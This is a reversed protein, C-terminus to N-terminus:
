EPEGGKRPDGDAKGPHLERYIYAAGGGRDLRIGKAGSVVRRVPVTQGGRHDEMLRRADM